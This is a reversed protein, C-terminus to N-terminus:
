EELLRKARRYIPAGLWDRTEAIRELRDRADQSELVDRKVLARLVIPSLAVRATTVQQLEPLARLDDTLLFQPECERELTVCSAEGSDIRSSQFQERDTDHVTILTREELVQQAANGHPDDYGATEELEEIVASTTHVDFETVVLEVVTATALSILASTDAVIM